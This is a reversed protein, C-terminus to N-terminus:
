YKLHSFHTLVNYMRLTEEIKQELMDLEALLDYFHIVKDMIKIEESNKKFDENNRQRHIVTLIIM